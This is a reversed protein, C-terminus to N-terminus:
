QEQEDSPPPPHNPFLICRIQMTRHRYLLVKETEEQNTTIDVRKNPLDVCAVTQRSFAIICWGDHVPIQYSDIFLEMGELNVAGLPQAPSYGTQQLQTYQSPTMHMEKPIRWPVTLGVPSSFLTPNSSLTIDVALPSSSSAATM